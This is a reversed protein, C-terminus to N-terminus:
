WPNSPSPMTCADRAQVEDLQHWVKVAPAEVERGAGHMFLREVVHGGFEGADVVRQLALPHAVRVVRADGRAAVQPEVGQHLVVELRAGRRAEFVALAPVAALGDQDGAGARARFVLASRVDEVQMRPVLRCRPAGSQGFTRDDFNLTVYGAANLAQANTPLWVEKVLSFGACLVVAPRREGPSLGPPLRLVGAMRAGDSFFTVTRKM